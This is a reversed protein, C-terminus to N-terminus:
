RLLSSTLIRDVQGIQLGSRMQEQIVPSIVSVLMWLEEKPEDLEEAGDLGFTM